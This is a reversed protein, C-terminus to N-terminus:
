TQNGVYKYRNIMIMRQAMDMEITHKEEEEDEGKVDCRQVSECERRYNAIGEEGDERDRRM